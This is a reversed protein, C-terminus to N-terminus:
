IKINEWKGSNWQYACNLAQGVRYFGNIVWVGVLGFGLVPGILFALPLFFVWQWIVSIRMARHTDGAGILANMLVMGMTDFSIMLAWLIMPLYALKRTEPNTLFIGLIPDAFPILLLSLIIGYLFTLASGNWGWRAADEKDGRGLANGVLTTSALAIGFAPLIATIHFTMLVNVAAVEATGIRGVIWILTVLGASFFLQQLSSPLSLRFQQWLTSRSPIRHLFGKDSAHRIAFFFYLVTGIYLSITTALGAGFVGLEPAGLKGFILVWNLFINIAHMILLTRLYVGTMHIASWYGRFSFNMGVAIMSVIRVQLYPIGLEKVGPDDTLFQFAAPAALILIICLPLGIILSLILGGNLPVATESDRGEGLRRAALAQVGASLGIIFSIALFNTFSGIGTAALANDGLRGVMGIDVLNLINQSMMGGMIPLAIRWIQGRRDRSPFLSHLRATVANM